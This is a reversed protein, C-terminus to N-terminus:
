YFLRSIELVYVKMTWSKWVWLYSKNPSNQSSNVDGHHRDLASSVNSSRQRADFDRGRKGRGGPFIRIVVMFNFRSGHIWEGIKKKKKKEFSLSILFNEKCVFDKEDFFLFFFNEGTRKKRGRFFKEERENWEVSACERRSNNYNDAALISPLVNLLMKENSSM